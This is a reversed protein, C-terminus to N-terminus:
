VASRLTENGLRGAGYSLARALQRKERAVCGNRFFGRGRQPLEDELLELVLEDEDEETRSGDGEQEGEELVLAAPACEDIRGNYTYAM